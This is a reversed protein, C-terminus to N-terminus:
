DPTADLLGQEDMRLKRRTVMFAFGFVGFALAIVLWGWHTASDPTPLVRRASAALLLYAPLMPLPILNGMIAAGSLVLFAICFYNLSAIDAYGFSRAGLWFVAAFLVQKWRRHELRLLLSCGIACLPWYRLYQLVVDADVDNAYLFRVCLLLQFSMMALVRAYNQNHRLWLALLPLGALIVPGEPRLIFENISPGDHGMLALMGCAYLADLHIPANERRWLLLSVLAAFIANLRWPTLLTHAQQLEWPREYIGAGLVLLGLAGAFRVRDLWCGAANPVFLPLVALLSIALPAFCHLTLPIRHVWCQGCLQLGAVGLTILAVTTQFSRRKWWALDPFDRTAHPSALRTAFLFLPLAGFATWVASTAVAAYKAGPVVFLMLFPQFNYIFLLAPLLLPKTGGFISSRAGTDLLFIKILALALSGAALILGWRFHIPLSGNVTFTVDLLFLLEVLVLTRSERSNPVHRILFGCTLVVMFEYLNIAGLLDILGGIIKLEFLYPVCVIYCGVLMMLASLLYCINHRMLARWVWDVGRIYLSEPLRRHEPM